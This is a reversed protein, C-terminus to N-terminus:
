DQTPSLRPDPGFRNSGDTGPLLMLVWTAIAVVLSIWFVPGTANNVPSPTDAVASIWRIVNPAMCGALLGRGMEVPLIMQLPFGIIVCALSIAIWLYIVETRRSRGSFDATGKITRLLLRANDGTTDQYALIDEGLSCSKGRSKLARL